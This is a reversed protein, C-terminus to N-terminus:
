CGSSAEQKNLQTKKVGLDYVSLLPCMLDDYITYSTRYESHKQVAVVFHDPVQHLKRHFHLYGLSFPMLAPKEESLGITMGTQFTADLITVLDFGRRVTPKIVAIAKEDRCRVFDIGQFGSGYSIGMKEFANYIEESRVIAIGEISLTETLSMRVAPEKEKYEVFYGFGKTNGRTLIKYQLGQSTQKFQVDIKNISELSKIPALWIVDTFDPSDSGPFEYQYADLAFKIYATGPLIRQSLVRHHSFYLHENDIEFSHFKLVDSGNNTNAFSLSM